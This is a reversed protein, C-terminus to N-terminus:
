THVQTTDRVTLFYNIYRLDGDKSGCFIWTEDKSSGNNQLKEEDIITKIAQGVLGSGGTVLIVCKNESM